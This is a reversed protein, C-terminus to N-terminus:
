GGAGLVHFAFRREPDNGPGGTSRVPLLMVSKQWITRHTQYPQSRSGELSESWYKM